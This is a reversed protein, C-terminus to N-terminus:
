EQWASFRGTGLDATEVPGPRPNTYVRKLKPLWDRLDTQSV